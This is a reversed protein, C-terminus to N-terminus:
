HELKDLFFPHPQLTTATWSCFLCRRRVAARWVLAKRLATWGPPSCRGWWSVVVGLEAAGGLRMSLDKLSQPVVCYPLDIM